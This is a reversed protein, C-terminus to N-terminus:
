GWPDTLHVTPELEVEFKKSWSELFEKGVDCSVYNWGQMGQESYGCDVGALGQQDLFSRLDQMFQRDTYILGQRDTDWDAPDFYVCLEGFDLEDSVYGLRMDTIRVRRQERSWYGTGDTNFVVTDM